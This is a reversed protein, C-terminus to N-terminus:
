SLATQSVEGGGELLLLEVASGPGCPGRGSGRDELVDLAPVVGAAPVGREGVEGRGLEFALVGLLGSRSDFGWNRGV